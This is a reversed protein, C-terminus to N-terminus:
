LYPSPSAPSVCTVTNDLCAFHSSSACRHCQPHPPTMWDFTKRCGPLHEQLAVGPQKWTLVHDACGPCLGAGKTSSPLQLPPLVLAPSVQCPGALGMGVFSNLPNWSCSRSTVAQSNSSPLLYCNNRSLMLGQPFM